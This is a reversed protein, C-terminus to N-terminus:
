YPTLTKLADILKSSFADPAEYMVWHGAGPIVHFPMDPQHQRFLEARKELAGPRSATADFEGWIGAMPAKIDPIAKLLADTLSIPRSRVRGRALNQRHIHIALDDINAPNKFMLIELNRRQLADIEDDSMDPEALRTGRPPDHLDGFGSAGVAVYSRCRGPMDRAVLSGLLGGFSFGALHFTEDPGLLDGIGTTMIAAISEATHPKPPSVSEGLGPTDAAFVTFQKSLTPISRFWHTWSGWGGHFLVLPQGQGWRHWVMPGDPGPTEIREGQDALAAIEAACSVHDITM